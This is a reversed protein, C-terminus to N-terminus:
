KVESTKRTRKLTRLREIKAQKETPISNLERIVDALTKQTRKCINLVMRELKTLKLVSVKAKREQMKIFEAYLVLLKNQKELPQTFIKSPIEKIDKTGLTSIFVQSIEDYRSTKSTDM